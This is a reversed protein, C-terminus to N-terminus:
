VRQGSFNEGDDPDNYLILVMVTIIKKTFLSSVLSKNSNNITTAPM